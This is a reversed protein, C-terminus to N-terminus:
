LSEGYVKVLAQRIQEQTTMSHDNMEPIDAEPPDFGTVEQLAVRVLESEASGVKRHYVDDACLVAGGACVKYTDRDVLVGQTWGHSDLWAVPHYKSTDSNM